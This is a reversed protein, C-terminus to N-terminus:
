IIAGQIVNELERVNGAVSIRAAAGHCETERQVDSRQYLRSYEKLFHEALRPIDETHDRLAPVQNWSTSRYYLDERFSGERVM